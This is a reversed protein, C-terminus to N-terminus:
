QESALILPDLADELLGDFLSGRLFFPQSCNLCRTSCQVEFDVLDELKQESILDSILLLVLM